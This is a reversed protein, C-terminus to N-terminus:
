PSGFTGLGEAGRLTLLVESRMAIELLFLLVCSPLAATLNQILLLIVNAEVTKNNQLSPLIVGPSGESCLCRLEQLYRLFQAHDPANRPQSIKGSHCPKGVQKPGVLM